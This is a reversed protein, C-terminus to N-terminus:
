HQVLFSFMAPCCRPQGVCTLHHLDADLFLCDTHRSNIVGNLKLFREQIPPEQSHTSFSAVKTGMTIRVLTLVMVLCERLCSAKIAMSKLDVSIKKSHAAWIKLVFINIPGSKINNGQSPPPTTSAPSNTTSPVASQPLTM